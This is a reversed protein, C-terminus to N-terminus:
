SNEPCPVANDKYFKQMQADHNIILVKQVLIDFGSTTDHKLKWMKTHVFM